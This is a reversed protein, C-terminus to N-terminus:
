WFSTNKAEKDTQRRALFKGKLNKNKQSQVKYKDFKLNGSAETRASENKEEAGLKFYHSGSSYLSSTVM